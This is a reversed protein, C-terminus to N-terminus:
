RKLNELVPANVCLLGSFRESSGERHAKLMMWLTSPINSAVQSRKLTTDVQGLFEGQFM